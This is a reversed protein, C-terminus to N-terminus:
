NEITIKLSTEASIAAFGGQIDVVSNYGEKKLISCAIMSRYGGACHIYHKTSKDLSIYESETTCWCTALVHM